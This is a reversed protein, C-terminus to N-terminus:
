FQFNLGGRFYRYAPVLVVRGDGTALSVYGQEFLNGVDAVVEMRGSFIGPLPQRIEMSLFPDLHYMSEGFADQRSVVPGDTWKYSATFKTHSRPITSSARAALSHRYRTALQDRISEDASANEIPALAGAYDYVFTTDIGGGIKQRYAIRMGSSNSVGADYAFVDSFFDQLYDPGSVAGLGFVASHSSRDHFIAATLNANPNLIHEIALEEHLDGDLVTQGNRLLLTPFSNLDSLAASMENQSAPGDQWPRSAVTLSTVWGPALLVAVEARPRLSSTSGSFGAALYEAGYRINVREGLALQSDHSLELGRFTPGNPGMRSERVVLSTVPGEGLHGSPIWETVFGGAGSANAYSFQGAMVLKSHEGITLDYVFATAPSDAFNSISGPHDSGSTLEMRRNAVRPAVDGQGPVQDFVIDGDQWRLVPRTAASSRLVWSWEDAPLEQNPQRRLKDFSSFVSGLMVELLTTHQDNVQVHQEMAPLFGALTVKVSYMGPALTATSFRGRDNTLVEAPTEGFIRESSVLVTAGMQPTGAPDVVVGSIKGSNTAAELSLASLSVLLALMLARIMRLSV